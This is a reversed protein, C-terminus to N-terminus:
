ELRGLFVKHELDLVHVPTKRYIKPYQSTYKAQTKFDKHRPSHTYPRSQYRNRNPVPTAVGGGGAVGTRVCVCTCLKCACVGAV